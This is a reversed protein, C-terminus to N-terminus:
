IAFFKITQVVTKEISNNELAYNRARTGMKERKENDDILVQIDYCLQEFTESKYGIKERVIIHDPDVSLSVVPVERMWAQLFTNPFGEYRSTNVLIHGNSLHQNVQGQALEGVYNLNPLVQFDRKLKEFWKGWGQRGIMIFQVDNRDRFNKALRVFIEPRKLPKLNAIWLVRIPETKIPPEEPLPHGNPIISDSEIGFRKKLLEAQYNTQATIVTANRIGYNLFLREPFRCFVQRVNSKWQPMVNDDSAIQFIFKAGHKKAYYAGVGTQIGGVRQYIISPGIKKLEDYIPWASLFSLFSGPMRTNKLLRLQYGEPQHSEDARQCIYFIEYQNTQSLADALLAAQYESGGSHSSFHSPTLICVRIKEAM